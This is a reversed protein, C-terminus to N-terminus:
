YIVKNTKTPKTKGKTKEILFEGNLSWPIQLYLNQRERQDVHKEEKNKAWHGPQSAGMCHQIRITRTVTRTM